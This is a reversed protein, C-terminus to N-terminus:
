DFFLDDFIMNKYINPNEICFIQCCLIITSFLIAM